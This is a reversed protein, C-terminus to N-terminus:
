PAWTRAVRSVRKTCTPAFIVVRGCCMWCHRWRGGFGGYDQVSKVIFRSDRFPRSERQNPARSTSHLALEELRVCGLHQASAQRGPLCGGDVGRFTRHTVTCFSARTASDPSPLRAVGAHPKSGPPTNRSITVGQFPSM